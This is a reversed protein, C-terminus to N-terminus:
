LWPRCPSRWPRVHRGNGLLVVQGDIRVRQALRKVRVVPIEGADILICGTAAPNIELLAPDRAWPKIDELDIQVGYEACMLRVLRSAPDLRHQLLRLM